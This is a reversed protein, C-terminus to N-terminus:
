PAEIPSASLSPSISDTKTCIGGAKNYLISTPVFLFAAVDFGGGELGVQLTIAIDQVM